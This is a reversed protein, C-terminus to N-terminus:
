RLFHDEFYAKGARSMEYRYMNTGDESFRITKVYESLRIRVVKRINEHRITLGIREGHSSLDIANMGLLGRKEVDWLIALVKFDQSKLNAPDAMARALQPSVELSLQNEGVDHHQERPAPVPQQAKHPTHILPAHAPRSAARAEPQAQVTPERELMHYPPPSPETHAGVVISPAVPNTEACPSAFSGQWGGGCTEKQRGQRQKWYYEALDLVEESLDGLVIRTQRLPGSAEKFKQILFRLM